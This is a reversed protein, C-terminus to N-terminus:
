GQFKPNVRPPEVIPQEGVVGQNAVRPIQNITVDEELIAGQNERIWERQPPRPPQPVGFFDAIRTMQAAMQQNAQTTSQILPNFITGMTQALTQVMDHNSEDMQQRLYSASNTTLNPM